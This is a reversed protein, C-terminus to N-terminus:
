CEAGKQNNVLGALDFQIDPIRGCEIMKKKKKVATNSLVGGVDVSPLLSRFSIQSNLRISTSM